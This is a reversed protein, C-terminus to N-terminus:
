PRGGVPLAGDPTGDVQRAPRYNGNRLKQAAGLPRSRDQFPAARTFLQFPAWYYPKQYAGGSKLLAMKAARLAEAPGRSGNMESYLRAMLESTSRDSVDWLGAIVNRAGAQLFAWTFGVLGEGSYARAGASRCASITVLEARLPLAAVDRAYLKYSDGKPSLIVASDLPSERNAVAHASFHILAFREPGAERYAEPHAQPGTVVTKEDARFLNQISAIEQESGPLPPYEPRTPVPSGLLLLRRGKSDSPSAPQLVALSPAVAITAEEIWYRPIEGSVLLTEFSLEHLAGDPVVIVNAGRRLLKRAPAVLTEFLRLGTPNRTELPNRMQLIVSTYAEVLGSIQKGPPLPFSDIAEPTVVWLFSRRPALWYSLLVAKEARAKARFDAATTRRIATRGLGLKESLLRARCSEVVELAQAARGRSMLFEVYDQYFPIVSSQYTVKWEDRRLKARSSESESVIGQFQAEAQPYDGLQLYLSGLKARAQLLAATMGLKAASGITQRYLKAAEEFRNRGAAIWGSHLQAWVAGRDDQVKERLALAERISAEAADLDGSEISTRALNNQWRAIDDADQIQRALALAKRYNSIAAAFDGQLLRVNGIDGFCKEQGVVDGMEVYDREVRSLIQLAQDYDGLRFYCIGLNHRVIASILRYGGKESVASSQEYWPVAEDYLSLLRRRNGLNWLAAAELYTDGSRKAYELAERATAEASTWDRTQMFFSTRILQVEARLAPVGLDSALHLAAELLGSADQPKGLIMKARARYLRWRVKVEPSDAGAAADGDLIKLVEGPRGLAILIESKLVRFRADWAPEPHSGLKQLTQGVTELSERLKGHRFQLRADELVRNLDLSARGGCGALLVFLLLLRRRIM